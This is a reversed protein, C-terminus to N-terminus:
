DADGGLWGDTVATQRIVVERDMTPIINELSLRYVVTIEIKDGGDQFLTSTNFNLGDYGNVVGMSELYEDATMTNTEFHREAMGKALTSAVVQSAGNWAENGALSALSKAFDLPNDIAGSLASSASSIQAYLENLDDTKEGSLFEEFYEESGESIEKVENSGTNIASNFADFVSIAMESEESLGDRVGDLGVMHYFYSYQSMEKATTSIAYSVKAQVLCFSSVMYIAMIVFVFVVLSITAEISASGRQECVANM